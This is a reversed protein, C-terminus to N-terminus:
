PGVLRCVRLDFSDLRKNFEQEMKDFRKDCEEVHLTLDGAIKSLREGLGAELKAQREEIAALRKDSKESTLLIQDAPALSMYEEYSM